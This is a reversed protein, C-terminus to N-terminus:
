FVNAIEGQIDGNTLDKIEINEQMFLKIEEVRGGLLTLIKNKTEKERSPIEPEPSSEYIYYLKGIIHFLQEFAISKDHEQLDAVLNLFWSIYADDIDNLTYSCLFNACLYENNPIGDISQYLRKSNHITNKFEDKFASHVGTIHSKECM